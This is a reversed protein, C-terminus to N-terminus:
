RDQARVSRLETFAMPSSRNIFEPLQSVEGLGEQVIESQQTPSRGFVQVFDQLDCFDDTLEVQPFYAPTGGRKILFFEVPDIAVM